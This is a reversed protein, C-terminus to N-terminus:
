KPFTRNEQSERVALDHVLKALKRELRRFKGVIYAILTAIALVCLYVALNIGSGIGFSQASEDLVGPYNIILGVTGIGLFLMVGRLARSRSGIGRVVVVFAPFFLLTLALRFINTTMAV